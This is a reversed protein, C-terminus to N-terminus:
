LDAIIDGTQEAHSCNFSVYIIVILRGRNLQENFLRNKTILFLLQNFLIVHSFQNKQQKAHKVDFM